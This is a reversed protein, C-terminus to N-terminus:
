LQDEWSEASPPRQLGEVVLKFGGARANGGSPNVSGSSQEEEKLKEVVRAMASVSMLNTKAGDESKVLGLSRHMIFTARDALAAKEESIRQKFGSDCVAEFELQNWGAFFMALSHNGMSSRFAQLYRGRRQELPARKVTLVLREVPLPPFLFDEVTTVVPKVKPKSASEPPPVPAGTVAKKAGIAARAHEAAAAQRKKKDGPDEM